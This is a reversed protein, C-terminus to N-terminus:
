FLIAFAEKAAKVFAEVKKVNKRGDPGEVGTHADVGVPRVRLIAEKVNEPHLGGALIVPRPSYEVLRRSIAWDHTKGTAGFAGTEPDYTDTIFADVHPAFQLIAEELLALNDGTVILSKTIHLRPSSCRLNSIEELTIDGHIQVRRVGIKLALDEIARTRNEYTILVAEAPPPIRQIVKAAAEETLDERHPFIRLPFGLQHVGAKVLMRAEEADLIGAIQILGKM